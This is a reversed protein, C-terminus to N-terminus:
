RGAPINSRPRVPVLVAGVDEPDSVFAEFFGVVEGIGVDEGLFDNDVEFGGKFLEAFDGGIHLLRFLAPPAYRV